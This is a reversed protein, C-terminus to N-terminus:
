PSKPSPISQNSQIPNIRQNLTVLTPSLLSSIPESAQKLWCVALEVLLGRLDYLRLNTVTLRVIM